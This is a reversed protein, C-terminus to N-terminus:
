DKFADQIAWICQLRQLRDFRSCQGCVTVRPPARERECLVPAAKSQWAELARLLVDEWVEESVAKEDEEEEEEGRKGEMEKRNQWEWIQPVLRVSACVGHAPADPPFEVVLVQPRDVVPFHEHSSPSLFHPFSPCLPTHPPCFLSPQLFSVHFYCFSYFHNHIYKYM